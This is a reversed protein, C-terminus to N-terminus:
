GPRGRSLEVAAYTTIAPLEVDRGENEAFRSLTKPGSSDATWLRASRYQGARRQKMLRVGKRADHPLRLQM